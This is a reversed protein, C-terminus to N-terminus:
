PNNRLIGHTLRTGLHFKYWSTSKRDDISRAFVSDTYGVLSSDESGFYWIVFNTTGAFYRLIRKGVKSHSEKPSEMFISIMCVYVYCAYVLTIMLDDFLIMVSEFVLSYKDKFM